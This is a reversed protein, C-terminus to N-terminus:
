HVSKSFQKFTNIKPGVIVLIFLKGLKPCLLLKRWFNPETMKTNISGLKMFFDSFPLSGIILFPHYLRTPQHFSPVSKVPVNALTQVGFVCTIYASDIKCSLETGDIFLAAFLSDITDLLDYCSTSM